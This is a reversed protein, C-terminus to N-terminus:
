SSTLTLAHSASALGFVGAPWLRVLFDSLELPLEVSCGLLLLLTAEMRQIVSDEPRVHKLLRPHSHLAVLACGAHIADRQFRQLLVANRLQQRLKPVLELCPFYRAGGTSLRYM